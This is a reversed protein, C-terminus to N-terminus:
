IRDFEQRLDSLVGELNKELISMLDSIEYTDDEYKSKKELAKNTNTMEDNGVFALTSKMKHSVMSLEEWNQDDTLIRMKSFEEPLEILLMELMTKKMDADGDSMLELYDLKVNQYITDSRFSRLIVLPPFDM